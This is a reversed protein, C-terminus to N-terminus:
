CERWLDRGTPLNVGSALFGPTSRRAKQSEVRGAELHDPLWFTRSTLLRRM